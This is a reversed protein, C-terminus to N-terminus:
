SGAHLASPHCLLPAQTDGQAQQRAGAPALNEIITDVVFLPRRQVHRHTRVVYEGLVALSMFQLNWLILFGLCAWMWAELVLVGCVSLVVVLAVVLLSLAASGGALLTICLAPMTSFATITDFALRVLRGYRYKTYGGARQRRVFPVGIQRFGIWGVLGRFFRPDEEFRRYVDLVCRDMLRFDGTDRPLPTDSILGLIRYFLFSTVRKVLSEGERQQRVGYVVQYGERWRAVFEGILEPSDQLDADMVIAAQGRAHQLGATTAMEHGFNRSLVVVRVLRDVSAKATLISRSSDTSGDDVFIIEYLDGIKDLQEKVRRYTEELVAEENLLPIVLSLVPVTGSPTSTENM